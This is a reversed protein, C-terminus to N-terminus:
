DHIPTKWGFFPWFIGIDKLLSDIKNEKNTWIKANSQNKSVIFM